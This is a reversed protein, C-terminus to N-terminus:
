SDAYADRFIALEPSGGSTANVRASFPTLNFTSEPVHSKECASTTHTM